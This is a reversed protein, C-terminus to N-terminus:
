ELEVRACRESLLIPVWAILLAWTERYATVGRGYPDPVPCNSLTIVRQAGLRKAREAHEREMGVVLDTAALLRPTLPQARHDALSSGNEEAVIVADRTAPAGSVAATGASAVEIGRHGAQAIESRAIAVAM